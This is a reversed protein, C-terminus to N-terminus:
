GKFMANILYEGKNQTTEFDDFKGRIPQQLLMQENERHKGSPTNYICPQFKDQSSGSLNCPLILSIYIDNLKYITNSQKVFDYSLAPM